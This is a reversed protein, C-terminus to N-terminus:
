VPRHCQQGSVVELVLASDLVLELEETDGTVGLVDGNM